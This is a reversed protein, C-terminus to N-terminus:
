DPLPLSGPQHRLLLPLLLLQLEEQRSSPRVSALQFLPPRKRGGRAGGRGRDRSIERGSKPPDAPFPFFFLLSISPVSLRDRQAKSSFFLIYSLTVTRFLNRPPPCAKASGRGQRILCRSPGWTPPLPPLPAASLPAEAPQAACPPLPGSWPRPRPRPQAPGDRRTGPEPPFCFLWQALSRPSPHAPRQRRGVAARRASSTGPPCRSGGGAGSEGKLAGGAGTGVGGPEGGKGGLRVGGQGM